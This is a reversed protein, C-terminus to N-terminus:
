DVTWMLSSHFHFLCMVFVSLVPYVPCTFQADIAIILWLTPVDQQSTGHRLSLYALNEEYEDCVTM